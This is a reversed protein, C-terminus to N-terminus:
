PEDKSLCVSVFSLSHAGEGLFPLEWSIHWDVGVYVNFFKVIFVSYVCILGRSPKNYLLSALSSHHSSMFCM